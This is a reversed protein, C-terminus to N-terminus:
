PARFQEELWSMWRRYWDRLNIPDSPMHGPQAYAVFRVPVGNDRLARYLKYSQTVPVRTDGTNSLILTPTRIQNARSIPSHRWYYAAGDARWPSRGELGHRMFVNLDSLSYDDLWDTVASAAVAARWVEPHAATLAVTLYGGYSHGSIAIRSEDVIDLAKVAALGAMIDRSPGDWPDGIISRQFADTSSRSGRYNPAFVLWGQAALWQDFTDFAELSTGMPGGHLNLVLPYRQGPRFEPPHVLVGDQEFGDLRWRVSAVRGLRLTAIGDNFHTLQRPRSTLSEMYYLEAPRQAQTGIFALAGNRSTMLGEVRTIPGLDLRRVNGGGAVPLVWVGHRTGDAATAVIAKGDPLWTMGLFSRDIEATIDRGAEGSAPAVVISTSRFIYEPGRARAYAIHRGDPSTPWLGLLPAAQMRAADFLVRQTGTDIDVIQLAADRYEFSTQRDGPETAIVVARGRELWAFGKVTDRRSTLQRVAGTAIDVVGLYSPRHSGSALFDHGDNVEFSTDFRAAGIREPAPHAALFAFTRGDPSWEFHDIGGSVRTVTVIEPRRAALSFLHIQQTGDETADLWALREGDSSWHVSGLGSRTPVTERQKGTAVDVLLLAKVYRNDVQDARSILLAITRGDPSFSADDFRVLRGLDALTLRPEDAHIVGCFALALVVVVRCRLTRIPIMCSETLITVDLTLASM